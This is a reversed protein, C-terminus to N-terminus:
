EDANDDGQFLFKIPEEATAQKAQAPLCAHADNAVFCTSLIAKQSASVDPDSQLQNAQKKLFAPIELDMTSFAQVFAVFCENMRRPIGSEKTFRPWRALADIWEPQQSHSRESHNCKCLPPSPSSSFAPCKCLHCRSPSRKVEEEFIAPAKRVLAVMLDFLRASVSIMGDRDSVFPEEVGAQVIATIVPWLKPGLPVLIDTAADDVLTDISFHLWFLVNPWCNYCERVGVLDIQEFVTCIGHLFARAQTAVVDKIFAKTESSGCCRRILGNFASYLPDGPPLILFSFLTGAIEPDKLSSVSCRVVELWKTLWTRFQSVAAGRYGAGSLISLESNAQFLERLLLTPLLPTIRVAQNVANWIAAFRPFSIPASEWYSEKVLHVGHWMFRSVVRSSLDVLNAEPSVLDTSVVTSYKEIIPEIQVIKSEFCMDVISYSSKRAHLKLLSSYIALPGKQVDDMLFALVARCCEKARSEEWPQLSVVFPVFLRFIATRAKEDNSTRRCEEILTKLV